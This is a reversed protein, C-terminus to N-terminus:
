ILKRFTLGTKFKYVCCHGSLWDGMEIVKCMTDQMNQTNGIYTSVRLYGVKKECVVDKYDFFFCHFTRTCGQCMDQFYPYIIFVLLDVVGVRLYSCHLIPLTVYMFYMKSVMSYDLSIKIFSFKCM